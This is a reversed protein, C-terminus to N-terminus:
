LILSLKTTGLAKNMHRVARPTCLAQRTPFLIIYLFAHKSISFLQEGKLSINAFGEYFKSCWYQDSGQCLCYWFQGPHVSTYKEERPLKTQSMCAVWTCHRLRFCFLLTFAPCPAPQSPHRQTWAREQWIEAPEQPNSFWGLAKRWERVRPCPCCHPNSSLALSNAPHMLHRPCSWPQPGLNRHLRRLATGWCSPYEAAQDSVM